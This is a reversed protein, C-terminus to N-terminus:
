WADGVHKVNHITYNDEGSQKTLWLELHDLADEKDRGVIVMDMTVSVLYEQLRSKKM